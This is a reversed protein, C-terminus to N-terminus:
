FASLVGSAAKSREGSLQAATDFRLSHPLPVNYRRKPHKGNFLVAAHRAM